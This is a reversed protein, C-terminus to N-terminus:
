RDGQLERLTCVYIPQKENIKFTRFDTIFYKINIAGRLVDVGNFVGGFAISISFPEVGDLIGSFRGAPLLGAVNGGLFRGMVDAYVSDVAILALIHEM